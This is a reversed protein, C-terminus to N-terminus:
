PTITHALEAAVVYVNASVSAVNHLTSVYFSGYNDANFVPIHPTGHRESMSVFYDSTWDTTGTGPGCVRLNATEQGKVGVVAIPADMQFGLIAYDSGAHFQKDTVNIVTDTWQGVAANTTVAVQWTKLNKIIGQIDGWSHLRAAAGPLDSYYNVLGLVSSSGAAAGHEVTLTDGATLGQGVYKPLLFMAPAQDPSYTLGTVNDHFMPSEVRLQTALTGNYLIAELKAMAPPTFNRVTFSDGTSAIGAALAKPNTAGATVFSGVTDIALGM